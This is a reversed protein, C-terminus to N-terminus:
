FGKWFGGDALLDCLGRGRGKQLLRRHSHTCCQTTRRLTERKPSSQKRRRNDDYQAQILSPVSHLGGVDNCPGKWGRVWVGGNIQARIVAGGGWAQQKNVWSVRRNSTWLSASPDQQQTVTACVCVSVRSHGVQPSHRETFTYSHLQSNTGFGTTTLM